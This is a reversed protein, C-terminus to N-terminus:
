AFVNRVTQRKRVSKTDTQVARPIREFFFENSRSPSDTQFVKDDTRVVQVIRKLFTTMRELPKPYGANSFCSYPYGWPHPHPYPHRHPHPHTLPLTFAYPFMVTGIIMGSDNM